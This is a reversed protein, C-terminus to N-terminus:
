KDGKLHGNELVFGIKGSSDVRECWVQYDEKDAMDAILKLSEEDLLSGDRVRIVRLKPNLAMAIAISTRLQEVTVIQRPM